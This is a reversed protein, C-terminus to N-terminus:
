GAPSASTHSTVEEDGAEEDEDLHPGDGAREHREVALEVIRGILQTYDIDAAKAAMALESSKELYPNANVELVYIENTDTVRLDVRAYDRTRLARTADVAVKQLRARLEDPIDAMVSKTGEYEVTGKEWKARADAVRPAGEPLGSFDMEVPPLALPEMNGLVGVYFERGEIYEEALASDGCSEHIELVRKMLTPADHVLSRTGIGISSDMRLPKVFLPLHLNGGTELDADRSFVAFKPYLIGEYALLKKALAKDQRLFLEGPGSGTYRLKLLDLVGTVKVDALPDDGFMELLNFVLDPARRSLGAVLRKLDGHVALVSPKHGLKRLARSVQGVVEDREKSGEADVYTLITINM